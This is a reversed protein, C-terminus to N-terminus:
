GDWEWKDSCRRTNKKRTETGYKNLAVMPTTRPPQGRGTGPVSRRETTRRQPSNETPVCWLSTERKPDRIQPILREEPDRLADSSSLPSIYFILGVRCSSHHPCELSGLRDRKEGLRGSLM